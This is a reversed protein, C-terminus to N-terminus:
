QTLGLRSCPGFGQLVQGSPLDVFNLWLSESADYNDQFTELPWYHELHFTRPTTYYVKKLARTVCDTNSFVPWLKAIIENQKDIDGQTVSYSNTCLSLSNHLPECSIGQRVMIHSRWGIMKHSEWNLQLTVSSVRHLGRSLSRSSHMLQQVNNAHSYMEYLPCEGSAALEKACTLCCM